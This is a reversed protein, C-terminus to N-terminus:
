YQLPMDGLVGTIDDWCIGHEGALRDIMDGLWPREQLHRMVVSAASDHIMEMIAARGVKHDLVAVADALRLMDALKGDSTVGTRHDHARIALLAEEPLCDAVLQAAIIGHQSWDGDVLYYDLDHCYGTVAWLQADHGEFAAFRAMLEGVFISHAARPRGGLHLTVLAQAEHPTLRSKM